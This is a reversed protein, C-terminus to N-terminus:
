AIRGTDINYSVYAAKVDYPADWECVDGEDEMSEWGEVPQWLVTYLPQYDDDRPDDALIALATYMTRDYTSIYDCYADQILIYTKGEYTATGFQAALKELTMDIQRDEYDCLKECIADAEAVDLEYEAILQERDAARWGGDYLAAAISQVDKLM